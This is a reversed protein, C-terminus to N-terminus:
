CFSPVCIESSGADDRQGGEAGRPVQQKNIFLTLAESRTKARVARESAVYWVVGVEAFNNGIPKGNRMQPVSLTTVFRRSGSLLIDNYMKRYRPEFINLIQPQLPPYVTAGLPFFPLVSTEGKTAKPKPPPSANRPPKPINFVTPLFQVPADVQDFDAYSSDDAKSSISDEGATSSLASSTLFASPNKISSITSRTLSPKKNSSIRLTLAQVGSFFTLLLIVVPLPTM